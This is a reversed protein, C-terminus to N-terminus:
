LPCHATLVLAGARGGGRAGVGNGRPVMYHTITWAHAGKPVNSFRAACISFVTTAILAFFLAGPTSNQFKEPYPLRLGGRAAPQVVEVQQECHSRPM